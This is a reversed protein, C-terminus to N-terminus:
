IIMVQIMRDIAMSVAEGASKGTKAGSPGGIAFGVAAGTACIPIQIGKGLGEAPKEKLSVGRIETATNVFMKTAVQSYYKARNEWTDEEQLSNTQNALEAM